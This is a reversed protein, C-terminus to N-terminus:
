LSELIVPMHCYELMNEKRQLQMLFCQRIQEEFLVGPQNGPERHYEDGLAFDDEQVIQSHRHSRQQAEQWVVM